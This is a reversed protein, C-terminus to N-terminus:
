RHHHMDLLSVEAELAACRAELDKLRRRADLVKNDKAALADQFPVRTARLCPPLLVPTLDDSCLRRV